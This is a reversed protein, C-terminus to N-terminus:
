CGVLFSSLFELSKSFFLDEWFEGALADDLPVWDERVCGLFSYFLQEQRPLGWRCLWPWFVGAVPTLAVETLFFLFSRDLM